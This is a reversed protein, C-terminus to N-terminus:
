ANAQLLRVTRVGGGGGSIVIRDDAEMREMASRYDDRSVSMALSDGKMKQLRCVLHIVYPSHPVRTRACASFSTM